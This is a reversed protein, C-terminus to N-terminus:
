QIAKDIAKLIIDRADRFGSEYSLKYLEDASRVMRDDFVVQKLEELVVM